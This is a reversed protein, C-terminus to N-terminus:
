AELATPLETAYAATPAIKPATIALNKGLFDHGYRLTWRQPLGFDYWVGGNPYAYIRVDDRFLSGVFAFPAILGHLLGYWFGPLPFGEYEFPQTACAALALAAAGVIAIKIAKAMV